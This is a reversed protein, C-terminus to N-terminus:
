FEVLKRAIEILDKNDFFELILRGKEKSKVKIEVKRKLQNQLSEKLDKFLENNEEKQKIKKDIDNNKTTALKEIERVSMGREIVKIAIAKVEEQSKFALLARAQGSSLNENEIEKVVEIPLNLLRITNTVASRSKGIKKAIENQTLGYKEILELFSKAEEIPNLNERQLNEILAIEMVKEEKIEKFIVPIQKLGAMKAARFRREGAIIQHKGNNLKRVLIPQIVGNLKISEALSSLSEEKFIKRPQNKNVEIEEINLFINDRKFNFTEDFLIDIGKGLGSKKM